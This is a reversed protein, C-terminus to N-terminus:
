DGAEGLPRNAFARFKATNPASAFRVWPHVSANPALLKSSVSSCWACHAPTAASAALSVSVAPCSVFISFPLAMISFSVSAAPMTRRAARWCRWRGVVSTRMRRRFGLAAFLRGPAYQEQLRSTAWARFEARFQVFWREHAKNQHSTVDINQGNEQKGKKPARVLTMAVSVCPSRNSERTMHLSEAEGEGGGREINQKNDAHQRERGRDTAQDGESRRKAM